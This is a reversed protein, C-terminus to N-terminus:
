NQDKPRKLMILALFGVKLFEFDTCGLPCVENAAHEVACGVYAMKLKRVSRNMLTIQARGTLHRQTLASSERDLVGESFLASGLQVLQSAHNMDVFRGPKTVLIVDVCMKYLRVRTDDLEKVRVGMCLCRETAEKLSALIQSSIGRKPLDTLDERLRNIEAVVEYLVDLASQLSMSIPTLFRSGLDGLDAASERVSSILTEGHSVLEFVTSEKVLNVPLSFAGESQGLHASKGAKVADECERIRVLWQLSKGLLMLCTREDTFAVWGPFLRKAEEFLQVVKPLLVGPNTMNSSMLSHSDQRWRLLRAVMQEFHDCPLRLPFRTLTQNM